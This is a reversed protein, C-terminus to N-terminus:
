SEQLQIVEQRELLEQYVMVSMIQQQQNCSDSVSSDAGVTDCNANQNTDQKLIRSDAFVVPNGTTEIGTVLVTTLLIM